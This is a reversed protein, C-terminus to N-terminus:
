LGDPSVSLGHIAGFIQIRQVLSTDKGNVGGVIIKDASVSKVTKVGMACVNLSFVLVKNKVLFGILDGSSTGAFLFDESNKSFTVCTYDRVLTGTNVM